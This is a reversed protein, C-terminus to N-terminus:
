WWMLTKSLPCVVLMTKGRSRRVVGGDWTNESSWSFLSPLSHGVALVLAPFLINWGSAASMVVPMPGSIPPLFVLLAFAQLPDKSWPLLGM